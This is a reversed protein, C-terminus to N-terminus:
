RGSEEILVPRRVSLPGPDEIDCCVESMLVHHPPAIDPLTVRTADVAEDRAQVATRAYGAFRRDMTWLTLWMAILTFSCIAITSANDRGWDLLAQLM